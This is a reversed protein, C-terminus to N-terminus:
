SGRPCPTTDEVVVAHQLPEFHAVEAEVIETVQEVVAHQLPELVPVVGDEEVERPEVRVDGRSFERPHVRAFVEGRSQEPVEQREERAQQEPEGM